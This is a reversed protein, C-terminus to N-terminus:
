RNLDSISWWKRIRINCDAKILGLKATSSDLRDIIKDLSDKAVVAVPGRGNTLLAIQQREPDYVCIQDYGLQLLIKDTPLHTANRVAWAVFPTELSFSIEKGSNSEIGHFGEIPWFGSWFEWSSSEADGLKPVKGFNFWSGSYQSSNSNIDRWAPAGVSSIQKRITVLKPKQRDPVELRAILDWSKKDQSSPRILLRDNRHTSNLDFIKQWQRHKLSGAYVDGDDASIFYVFIKEPLSISSIDVVETNTYLTTGSALWYWGFLISYSVTQILLSGIISKRLWSPDGRFAFAVFPFELLLTCLYTIIVMLGLLSWATHLGMPLNYSISKAIIFGGLWASLYNALILLSICKRKPLGFVKALIIGELLGILLNGFLLHFTGAWMLPTGANAQVVSPIACLLMILLINRKRKM